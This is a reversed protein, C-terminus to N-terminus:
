IVCMLKRTIEYKISIVNFTWVPVNLRGCLNFIVMEKLYVWLINEEELPKNQLSLLGM